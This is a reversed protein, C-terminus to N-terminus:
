NNDDFVNRTCAEPMDKTYRQLIIQENDDTKLVLCGNSNLDVHTIQSLFQSITTEANMEPMPGGMRTSATNGMKWTDGSQKTLQGWISNCIRVSFSYADTKGSEDPQISFSYNKWNCEDSLKKYKEKMKWDGTIGTFDAPKRTLNSPLKNAKEITIKGNGSFSVYPHLPTPYSGTIHFAMGLPEDNHILYLKLENNSLDLLLGIKDGQKIKPGFSGVLLQSGDSLNGVSNYELGTIGYGSGFKNESTVGVAGDHTEIKYEWYHQGNVAGGDDDKFMANVPSGPNYGTVTATNGNSSISTSDECLWTGM